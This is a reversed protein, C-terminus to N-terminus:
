NVVTLRILIGNQLKAKLKVHQDDKTSILYDITFNQDPDDPDLDSKNESLLASNALLSLNRVIERCHCGCFLQYKSETGCIDCVVYYGMISM